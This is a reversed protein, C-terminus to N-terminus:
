PRRATAAQWSARDTIEKFYRRVNEGFLSGNKTIKILFLAYGVSIDCISFNGLLHDKGELSVELLNLCNAAEGRAWEAMDPNRQDEPLLATHAILMNVYGGMGAEGFHLWQLYASYDPDDASRSLSGDTYKDALYQLIATSELIRTEGDFFVPTKGLPNLALYEPEKLSARDFVRTEVECDIKAEEILCLPRLSRTMPFHILKLAM